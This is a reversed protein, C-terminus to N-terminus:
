ISMFSFLLRHMFIYLPSHLLMWSNLKIYKHKQFKFKCPCKRLTTEFTKMMQWKGRIWPQPLILILYMSLVEEIRNQSLAKTEIYLTHCLLIFSKFVCISAYIWIFKTGRLTTRKSSIRIISNYLAHKFRKKQLMIIFYYNIAKRHQENYQSQHIGPM